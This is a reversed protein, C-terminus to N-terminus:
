TGVAASEAHEIRYQNLYDFFSMDFGSNIVQSLHNVSCDIASALNPLTLDTRLYAQHTQMIVELRDKYESLQQNNLGSKAYKGSRSEQPRRRAVTSSRPIGPVDYYDIISTAADGHLTMFEAGRFGSASARPKGKGLPFMRYQFAVTNNSAAVEGVLEYHHRFKTFFDNLSVILESHSRQVNEPIDRYVGDTALHNAVAEPDSHNWADFYSEVFESKRMPASRVEPM